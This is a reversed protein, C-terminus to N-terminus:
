LLNKLKELGEEEGDFDRGAALYITQQSYPDEVGLTPTYMVGDERGRISDWLERYEFVNIEKYPVTTENLIRKLELCSQCGPQTYLILKKKM